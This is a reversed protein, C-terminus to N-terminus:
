KTAGDGRVALLFILAEDRSITDYHTSLSIEQIHLKWGM